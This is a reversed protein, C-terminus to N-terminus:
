VGGEERRQNATIKVASLVVCLNLLGESLVSLGFLVGISDAPRFVLLAGLVGSLVALLLTLWWTTLGFRRADLAIQIKFLGDALIFVGLILGLFRVTGDPRTLAAVGLAAMLVGFALDYQFALRYLDKSFYGVVKVAGFAIMGVGLLRGLVLASSQPRLLILAGLLCFLVSLIIYGVKAARMPIVCRIENM